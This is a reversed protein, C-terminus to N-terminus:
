GRIAGQIAGEIFQRQMLLYLVLLPAVVMTAGACVVNWAPVEILGRLFQLGMPLVYMHLKNTVILPWLYENWAGVFTLLLLTSIIPRSVPVAIQWLQRLYGAGDIEAADFLEDPLSRFHEHLLFTIFASSVQPVILGQYTNIWKLRSLLIYNPVLTIQSPMMFTLLIFFFLFGKGPFRLRAFGYAAFVGQLFKGVTIAVSFVISNLAFRGFPVVTWAEVYNLWQPVRPLLQLGVTYVEELTKLSTSIMFFFPFGVLVACIVAALNVLM